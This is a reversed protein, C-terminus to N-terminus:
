ATKCFAAALNLAAKCMTRDNGKGSDQCLTCYETCASNCKLNYKQCMCDLDSYDTSKLADMKRGGKLSLATKLEILHCETVVKVNVKTKSNHFSVTFATPAQAMSVSALGGEGGKGDAILFPKKDFKEKIGPWVDVEKFKKGGQTQEPCYIQLNKAGKAAGQEEYEAGCKDTLGPVPKVGKEDCHSYDWVVNAQRDYAKLLDVKDEFLTAVHESWLDIDNFRDPSCGYFYTATGSQMVVDFEQGGQVGRKLFCHQLARAVNLTDEHKMKNGKKSDFTPDKEYKVLEPAKDCATKASILSDDM